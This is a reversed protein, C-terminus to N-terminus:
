ALQLTNRMRPRPVAWDTEYRLLVTRELRGERLRRVLAGRKWFLGPASADLVASKM